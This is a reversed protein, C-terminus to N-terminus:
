NNYKNKIWLGAQSLENETLNEINEIYPKLLASSEDKNSLTWCIYGINKSRLYDIWKNAEDEDLNGNGTYESLGFESVIIPLKKNYALDLSDRLDSKHSAAYFHFSYLLNNFDEIPSDAPETLDKCYNPTGVIIIGDDDLGRILNIMEIAYNKVTDWTVDGNPENCIEYIINEYDKYKDAMREFFLKASDKNINPDNDTLIHWDLIVYLGLKSAYEIGEDVKTYLAESYGENPNSYVCLRITNCNLDRKTFEFVNYNIYQPFAYISHTSVGQIQFVNGDKDVINQGDVKLKGHKAVPSEQAMNIESYLINKEEVEEVMNKDEEIVIDLENQNSYLKYDIIELTGDYSFTGGINIESNADIKYNYDINEISISKDKINWKGNWSQEIKVDKNVILQLKWNEIEKNSNNKIRIQITSFDSNGDNWISENEITVKVNNMNEEKLDTKQEDNEIIPNNSIGNEVIKNEIKEKIENNTNEEIKIHRNNYLCILLVGITVEILLVLINKFLKKDNM